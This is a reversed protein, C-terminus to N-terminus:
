WDATMVAGLRLTKGCWSPLLHLASRSAARPHPVPAHSQPLRGGARGGSRARRGRARRGTGYFARGFHRQSRAPDVISLAILLLLVAASTFRISGM